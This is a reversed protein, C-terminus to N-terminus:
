RRSHRRNALVAMRHCSRGDFAGRNRRSFRPSKRHALQPCAHELIERYKGRQALTSRGALNSNTGAVEPAIRRADDPLHLGQEHALVPYMVGPQEANGIGGQTLREGLGGQLVVGAVRSQRLTLGYKACGARDRKDPPRGPLPRATRSKTQRQRAAAGCTKACDARDTNMSWSVHVSSRSCTAAPLVMIRMGMPPVSCLPGSTASPFCLTRTLASLSFIARARPLAKTAGTM